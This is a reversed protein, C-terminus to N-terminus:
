WVSQPAMLREAQAQAQAQARSPMSNVNLQTIASHGNAQGGPSPTHRQPTKNPYVLKRLSKCVHM